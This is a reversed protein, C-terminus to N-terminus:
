APTDKLNPLLVSIRSRDYASQAASLRRLSRDDTALDRALDHAKHYASHLDRLAQVLRPRDASVYDARAKIWMFDELAQRAEACEPRAVSDDHLWAILRTVPDM